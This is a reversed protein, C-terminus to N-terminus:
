ALTVRSERPMGANALLRSSHRIRCAAVARQQLFPQKSDRSCATADSGGAARVDHTPGVKGNKIQHDGLAASRPLAKPTANRSGSGLRVSM